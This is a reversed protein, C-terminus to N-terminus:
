KHFRQKIFHFMRLFMIRVKMHVSNPQDMWNLSLIRGDIKIQLLWLKYQGFGWFFRCQFSKQDNDLMQANGDNSCASCNIILLLM